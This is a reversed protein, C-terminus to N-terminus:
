KIADPSIIEDESSDDSSDSIVVVTDDLHAKKSPIANKNTQTTSKANNTFASKEEVVAGGLPRRKTSSSQSNDNASSKESILTNNLSTIEKAQSESKAGGLRPQKKQNSSAPDATPSMCVDGDCQENLLEPRLKKYATEMGTYLGEEGREILKEKLHQLWQEEHKPHRMYHDYIAAKHKEYNVLAEAMQKKHFEYAARDKIALYCQRKFHEISNIDTEEEAEKTMEKERKVRREYEDHEHQYQDSELKKLKGNNDVPVETVAKADFKVTLPVPRSYQAVIVGTHGTLEIISKAHKEAKKEEAFSGLLFVMARLDDVKGDKDIIDHNLVYAFVCWDNGRTARLRSLAELTHKNVLPPQQLTQLSSM